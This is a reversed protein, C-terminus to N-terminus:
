RIKTGDVINVISEFDRICKMIWAFISIFIRTQRSGNCQQHTFVSRNKKWHRHFQYRSATFLGCYTFIWKVRTFLAISLGMFLSSTFLLACCEAILSSSPTTDYHTFLFSIASFPVSTFSLFLSVSVWHFIIYDHFFIPDDGDNFLLHTRKGILDNMRWLARCM